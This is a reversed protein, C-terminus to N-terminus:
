TKTQSPSITLPEPDYTCSSIKHIECKEHTDLVLQKGGTIELLKRHFGVIAWEWWLKWHNGKVECLKEQSNLNAVQPIPVQRYMVIFHLLM